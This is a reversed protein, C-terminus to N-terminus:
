SILSSGEMEQGAPLGLAALITPALDVLKPGETSFPQNMFLCGPVLSPDIIHDGSWAKTNDDFHGEPVGGMSSGWSVRYGAAFNVFLDPSEHAFPGSYLEARTKVSRIAVSGGAEDRLGTLGAAISRSLRDEEGIPVIGQGERGQINLYIGGLGLAYAQTQGWDVGQLLEGSGDGIEYGPKLKLLGNDFLWTNLHVGRRFSNFGHDSAVILLTEDDVFKLAEGVVQDGRRYHDDIIRAIAPDAPEGLLAPHGPERHRWLMHQIRDPTDYLCFFLGQQFQALEHLMMAEREDWVEDCQDLFANLSLRGNSLGTHDEVMGTTHFMGISEALEAVYSEPYSIPFPPSEPDFNIPSAYIEVEPELRILHFRVQGWVANLMGLKFKVKLWDSWQGLEVGITATGDACSVRVSQQSRDIAITMELSTNTRDKPNRPGILATAIRDSVPPSLTVVNESEGTPVDKRTTYFTSTGLGGRLDPVGMGALLRGRMPATPYTCPCRLITSDVGAVSLIDWVPVGRRLNVPRSPVFANRQEYRNLGLDIQYTKPDRRLFDFIGHRGPNAGTAFSSWAVPTQAPTTTAVRSFGGMGRLKALNPLDGSSLLPDVLSPELGDLGIM